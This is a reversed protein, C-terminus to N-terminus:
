QCITNSIGPTGLDGTSYVLTSECWNTGLLAEDANKIGPDLQISKGNVSTPFGAAGYNVSCIVDGDTGDTGYTNIILNEGSNGLSITSRYVYDVTDVAAAARGMVAYEGAALLLDSSIVHLANNSGRRIVLGNLNQTYASNNFLEFWEGQADDLAAPNFMIETILLDGYAIPPSLTVLETEYSEDVNLLITGFGDNMSAEIHIEYHRGPLPNAITGTLTLTQPTGSGDTYTLTAEIDLPGQDFYGARTESMGFTLSGGANGVVTEYSDFDDIVTQAYVVTVMSNSLMCTVSATTTEGAVISFLESEGHYYPNDFAAPLNNNSHAVAYYTGEPLDILEPMNAAHVFSVVETGSVDFISVAFEGPEAAKLNNYVDFTEVSIGMTLSLRGTRPDEHHENKSCACFFLLILVPLVRGPISHVYQTKM